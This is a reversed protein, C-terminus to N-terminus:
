NIETLLYSTGLGRAKTIPSISCHSFVGQQLSDCSLTIHLKFYLVCVCAQTVPHYNEWMVNKFVMEQKMSFFISQM